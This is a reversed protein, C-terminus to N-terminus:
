YELWTGLLAFYLLKSAFYGEGPLSERMSGDKFPRLGIQDRVPSFDPIQLTKYRKKYM